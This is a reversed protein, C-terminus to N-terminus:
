MRQLAGAIAQALQQRNPPKDLWAAVGAQELRTRDEGMPHGSMLIVPTRNGRQRLAEAMAIGGVRPMVVDSLILDVPEDCEALRALAEEGDGAMLVVYDWSELLDIVSTRVVADDEVVLIREGSGREALTIEISEPLTQRFLKVQEKLLPLLDLTHREFVSQRAFDLIQRIMRAARQAQDVITLTRAREKDTLGPALSTLEAYISIISMINNFDHAIGAALQGVAALREQRELQVQMQEARKRETIDQVVGAVQVTNGQEDLLPEGAVAWVHRVNGGPLVVRFEEEVAHREAVAARVGDEVRQADDSHV